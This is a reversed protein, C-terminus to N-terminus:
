NLEGMVARAQAEFLRSCKHCPQPKECRGCAVAKIAARIREETTPVLGLAERVRRAQAEPKGPYRGNLLPYVIGKSLKSRKCFRYVSGHRAEIAARLEALETESM